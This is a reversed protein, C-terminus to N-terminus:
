SNQRIGITVTLDDVTHTEVFAKDPPEKNVLETTLTEAKIYDGWTLFVERLNDGAQYWTTIRDEINFDANKRQAQIRRVIERAFGESKLEPTLVADIAVTLLQDSAVALGEAPETNVLIEEQTLSFVSDNVQIKVDQGAEVKRAVEKPDLNSLAARVKPFDSGFKPGLLQNVPLVRYDVLRGPDDVFEFHKVNLEDSVIDVLEDSLETQGDDVYVLVKSLPQRVKLGANSRASLGLSAVRRALDMEYVLKQNIVSIEAKPWDTHHISVQANKFVNRVLNQYM